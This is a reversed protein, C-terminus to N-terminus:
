KSSLTLYEAVTTTNPPVTPHTKPPLAPPLPPPDSIPPSCPSDLRRAMSQFYFPTKLYKNVWQCPILYFRVRYPEYSPNVIYDPSSDRRGGRSHGGNVVVAATSPM